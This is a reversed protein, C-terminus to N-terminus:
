FNGIFTGGVHGSQLLECFIIVREIKPSLESPVPQLEGSNKATASGLCPSSSRSHGRRTERPLTATHFAARSIVVVISLIIQQHKQRYHANSIITETCSCEKCMTSCYLLITCLDSQVFYYITQIITVSLVCSVLIHFRLRFNRFTSIISFLKAM